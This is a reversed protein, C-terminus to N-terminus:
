NQMSASSVWDWFCLPGQSRFRPSATISEMEMRHSLITGTDPSTMFVTSGVAVAHYSPVSADIANALDDALSTGNTGSDATFSVNLNDPGTMTYSGASTLVDSPGGPTSVPGFDLSLPDYNKFFTSDSQTVYNKPLGDTTVTFNFGGTELFVTTGDAFASNTNGEHANIASAIASAVGYPLGNADVALHVTNHHDFTYDFDVIAAKSLVSNLTLDM